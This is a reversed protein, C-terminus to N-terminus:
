KELVVRYDCEEDQSSESRELTKKNTMFVAISSPTAGGNNGKQRKQPSPNADMQSSLWIEYHDQHDDWIHKRLRTNNQKYGSPLPPFVEGCAEIACRSTNKLPKGDDDTGSLRHIFNLIYSNPISDRTAPFVLKEHGRRKFRKPHHQQNNSPPAGTNTPTTPTELIPRRAPENNRPTNRSRRQFLPYVPQPVTEPESDNNDSSLIINLNLPNTELIGSNQSIEADSAINEDDVLQFAM